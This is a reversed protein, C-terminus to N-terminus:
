GGRDVPIVIKVLTGKGKQTNIQLGFESGYILKLRQDTNKLGIKNHKGNRKRVDDETQNLVAELDFGVGNDSIEICINEGDPYVSINVHAHDINEEIGHIVANEVISEAALKPIYCSLLAPDEVHIHYSLKDGFRMEQLYLYFGAYELEQEITIKATNDTYISARLLASLSDVMKYITEDSSLKAKMQITLLVNFLFHPNMQYQLFKIEMEKILLQKQYTENILYKIKQTMENFTDSLHDQAKVHYHPMKVDYDEESLRNMSVILDKIFLTSRLSLWVSLAILVAILGLSVLIFSSMNRYVQSNFVNKPVMVAFRLGDYNLNCYSSVYKMDELSVDVFRNSPSSLIEPTLTRGVYLKDNSSFVVGNEDFLFAKSGDMPLMDAYKDELLTEETGVLIVLTSQNDIPNVLKRAHYITRDHPSPAIDFIYQDASDHIRQYVESTNRRLQEVIMPKTYIQLLEQDDSFVTVTTLLQLSWASNYALSGRLEKEFAQRITYSSNGHDFLDYDALWSRVSNNSALGITTNRILSFSEDLRKGAQQLNANLSDYTNQVISQYIRLNIYTGSIILSVSITLLFYVVVRSRASASGFRGFGARLPSTIKRLM